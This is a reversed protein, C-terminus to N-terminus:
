QNAEEDRHTGGQVVRAFLTLVTDKADNIVAWIDDISIETDSLGAAPNSIVGVSAYRVGHEVALAVEPYGTMGVLDAGLTRAMRIEARTEFRPGNFCIYTGARVLPIQLEEAAINLAARLSRTTPRAEHRHPPGRGPQRLLHRSRGTTWDIFDDILVLSGPTLHDAIGGSVATALIDSVGVSALAWINARYNIQQPSISHSGGHRPLFAVPQDHWTGTTVDVEGYPTDVTAVQSQELGPLEYFGSGTIFGFVRLLTGHRRSTEAGM